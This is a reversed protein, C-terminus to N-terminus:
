IEQILVNIIMLDSDYARIFSSLMLFSSSWRTANECRVQCKKTLHIKSLAISRRISSAFQSLNRLMRSFSQHSKTATRVAVNLKHAACSFRPLHNSGLVISLNKLPNRSSSFYEEKDDILELSDDIKRSVKSIIVSNTFPISNADQIAESIEDNVTQLKLLSLYDEESNQTRHNAFDFDVLPNEIQEEFCLLGESSEDQEHDPDPDEEISKEQINEM